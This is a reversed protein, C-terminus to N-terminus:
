EVPATAAPKVDVTSAGCVFCSAAMTSSSRTRYSLTLFFPTYQQTCGIPQPVATTNMNTVTIKYIRKQRITYVHGILEKYKITKRMSKPKM